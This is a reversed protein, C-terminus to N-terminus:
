GGLFSFAQTGMLCVPMLSFSTNDVLGWRTVAPSYEVQKTIVPLLVVTHQAYTELKLEISLTKNTPCYSVSRCIPAQGACKMLNPYVPLWDM